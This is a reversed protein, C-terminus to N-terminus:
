SFFIKKKACGARVGIDARRVEALEHGEEFNVMVGVLGVMHLVSEFNKRRRVPTARRDGARAPCRRALM